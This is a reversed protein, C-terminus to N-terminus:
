TGLYVTRAMKGGTTAVPTFNGVRVHWELWSLQNRAQQLRKRHLSELEDEDLNGLREIETDLQEEVARAAKLVSREVAKEM